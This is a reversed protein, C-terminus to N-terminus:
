KRSGVADQEFRWRRGPSQSPSGIFGRRFSASGGKQVVFLPSGPPQIGISHLVAYIPHLAAIGMMTVCRLNITDSREGMEPQAAFGILPETL